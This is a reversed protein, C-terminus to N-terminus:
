QIISTYISSHVQEMRDVDGKREELEHLLRDIDNQKQSIIKELAEKESNFKSLMNGLEM